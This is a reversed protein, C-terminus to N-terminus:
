YFEPIFSESAANGEQIYANEIGINVCFDLIDDYEKRTLKRSLNAIGKCYPMPTYQSMISLIVNEGYTEFIYKISSESNEREGPLCLHRVIVGKKLMEGEFQPKGVANFMLKLANKAVYPYDEARSYSKALATDMYKFDVLYVDIVDSLIDLATKSVYGSSNLIVPLDMGKKKAMLVADKVQPAFHEATVLNINHAGQNQLDLFINALEDVSVEKGKKGESLEKNQCYVCKLSCGAFFVTGSGNIGSICPEEWLHLAARGIRVNSGEGCIGKKGSNRNVKCSRPCLNCRDYKEYAMLM